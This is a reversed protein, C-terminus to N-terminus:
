DATKQKSIGKIDKEIRKSESIQSEKYKLPRKNNIYIYHNETQTDGFIYINIYKHTYVYIYIYICM